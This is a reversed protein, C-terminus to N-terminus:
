PGKARELERLDDFSLFFYARVRQDKDLLFYVWVHDYHVRQWVEALAGRRRVTASVLGGLEAAPVGACEPITRGQIRNATVDDLYTPLVGYTQQLWAEAHQRSSGLPVGGRVERAVRDSYSGQASVWWWLGGLAGGILLVALAWIRVRKRPSRHSVTAEHQTGPTM